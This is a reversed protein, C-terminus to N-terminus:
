IKDWKINERPFDIWAESPPFGAPRPETQSKYKLFATFACIFAEFAHNNAVMARVDQEYVFVVNHASLAHLISRRSDDGGVSHKHFRLHSKMVNLSRGIRWVSLKPFVEILPLTLRRSIYRARAMMPAVNAGLADHMIMPEELETAVYMEVARQTYPTFLRVNKKKAARKRHHEWMWKIHPADSNEYAVCGPECDFSLPPNFPVDFAVTEVEGKYQEIIEHIKLDASIGDDSKIKEFLRSLFVKHYKPYYEVVAVCAKDNKGGSLSIGIFRHLEGTTPTALGGTKAAPTERKKSKKVTSQRTSRGNGSLRSKPM